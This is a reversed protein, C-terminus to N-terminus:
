LEVLEFELSGNRVHGLAMTHHPARRRKTPSGPNVIQFAEGAEILPLHSHGFVVAGADPFRKRMRQLRGGAPGADHVIAISADAVGVTAQAPLRRRLEPCDMNGHVATVPPGLSEIESLVEATVFDGAHLILDAQRM